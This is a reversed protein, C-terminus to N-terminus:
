IVRHKITFSFEIVVVEEELYEPAAVSLGFTSMVLSPTGCKNVVLYEFLDYVEDYLLNTIDQSNHDNLKGPNYSDTLRIKFGQNVVLAGISDEQNAEQPLAAFSKKSGGSKNKALDIGYSIKKFDSGLFEVAKTEIGSILTTITGM